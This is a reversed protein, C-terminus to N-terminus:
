FGYTVTTGFRLNDYDRFTKLASSREWYSVGVGIRGEGIRYGISGTYNWTIDQRKPLVTRATAQTLLDEYAM